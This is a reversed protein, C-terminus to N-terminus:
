HVYTHEFRYEIELELRKGSVKMVAALRGLTRCRIVGVGVKAGGIAYVARAVSIQRQRHSADRLEALQEPTVRQPIILIGGGPEGLTVADLRDKGMVKFGICGGVPEGNELWGINPAGLH